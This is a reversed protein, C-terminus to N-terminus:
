RPIPHTCDSFTAIVGHLSGVSTRRGHGSGSGSVHV